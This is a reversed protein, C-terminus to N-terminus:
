MDLIEKLILTFAILTQVMSKTVQIPSNKLLKLFLLMPWDRQQLAILIMSLLLLLSPITSGIPMLFQIAMSTTYTKSSTSFSLAVTPIISSNLSIKKEELELCKDEKQLSEGNEKLSM